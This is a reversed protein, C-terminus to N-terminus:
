QPIRNYCPEDSDGDRLGLTKMEDLIMDSQIKAQVSLRLSEVIDPQLSSITDVIVKQFAVLDAVKRKLDEIEREHDM